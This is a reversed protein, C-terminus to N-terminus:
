GKRNECFAHGYVWLARDVCRDAKWRNGFIQDLKAKYPEIREKYVRKFGESDKAPLEPVVIPVDSQTPSVGRCIAEVAKAAFRDYIPSKGRSLFYLMTIMYTTGFRKVQLANLEDLVKQPEQAAWDEFESRRKLISCYITKLDFDDAYLKVNQEEAKEWDKAYCFKSQEQSNKHQIKGIKWALIHIVDSEKQIGDKLVREIKGEILRSSQRVGRVYREEGLFYSTGYLKLFEERGIENGTLDFCRM